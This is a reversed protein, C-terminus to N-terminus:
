FSLLVRRCLRSDFLLPSGLRRRPAEAVVKDDFHAGDSENAQSIFIMKADDQWTASLSGDVAPFHVCGPLHMIGALKAEGSGATIISKGPFAPPSM